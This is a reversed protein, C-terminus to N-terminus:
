FDTQYDAEVTSNYYDLLEQETGHKKEWSKRGGHIGHRPDQHHHWCLPVYESHNRQGLGMGKRLHHICAQVFGHGNKKCVVCGYVNAMYDMIKKDRRTPKKKV